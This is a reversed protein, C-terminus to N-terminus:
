RQILMQKVKNRWYVVEPLKAHNEEVYRMLTFGQNNKAYINAGKEILFAVLKYDSFFAARLLVTDGTFDKRELDAYNALLKM